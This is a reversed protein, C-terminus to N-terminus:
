LSDKTELFLDKLQFQDFVCSDVLEEMLLSNKGKKIKEYKLSDSCVSHLM